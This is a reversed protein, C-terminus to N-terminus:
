FQMDRWSWISYKTRKQNENGGYILVKQAAPRDAIDEFKNLQNFLAPQITQTTKIEFLHYAQVSEYLLDIENRNSDQWFYFEQQLYRHYNQKVFEGIVLNEFVQGKFSSLELDQSNKLGLIHSLLGTDYFYLKPSKIIRKKFNSYYPQLLFVIYSSQLVTLWNKATTHSVGVSKAISNLNLIDGANHACIKIFARFLELNQVNVIETVDRELYSSIYNGYFIRPQIDRDYIAPYFGKICAETFSDALINEHKLETCDFPMLKFLIVRGALTQTINQLLHFNQSGSLIYQGMIKSNDVRTQIYSFLEPVRQVEDLIVYKDYTEFFGNPDSKAFDRIDPNELSIYRYDKFVSKLLTTKGSQRPGTLALIPFKEKQELIQNIINRHIYSDSM